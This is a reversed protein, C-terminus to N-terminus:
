PATALTAAAPASPSYPPPCHAAPSCPTVTLPYHQTVSTIQLCCQPLAVCPRPRTTPLGATLPFRGAPPSAASPSTEQTSPWPLCTPTIYQHNTPVRSATGPPMAGSPTGSSHAQPDSTWRLVRILLAPYQSQGHGNPIDERM